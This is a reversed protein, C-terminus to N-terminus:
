RADDHAAPDAFLEAAHQGRVTVTVEPPDRLTRSGRVGQDEFRRLTPTLRREVSGVLSNYTRVSADLSQGLKTLREFVLAAREHLEQGLALLARGEEALRHERWGVAVARLLGILTAPSALIVNSTAARELLDPRRALAADLLHDGPMFMVVFDASGDISRWYARDSLKRVQDTVHAAFREFAADRQADTEARHAELYADLNCKADIAIVRENPLRVLMDPRIRSGDDRSASHQEVFDCHASMGAIEAVRRLQLEGYQGRVEPRQLARALRATEARLQDSSEASHRVREHLAALQQQTKDLTQGIPRVLTDLVGRRQEAEAEAMARQDKFSREAQKLLDSGAQRLLRSAASEFAERTRADLQEVRERLVREREEMERALSQRQAEFVATIQKVEAELKAARVEGHAAAERLSDILRAAETLERGRDAAAQSAGDREAVAARLDGQQAACRHALWVAALVAALLLVGLAIALTGM